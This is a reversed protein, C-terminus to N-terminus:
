DVLARTIGCEVDLVKEALVEEALELLAAGDGRAVLLGRAVDEGGDVQGRGGDEEAASM